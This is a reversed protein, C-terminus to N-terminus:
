PILLSWMLAVARVQHRLELRSGAEVGGTLGASAAVERKAETEFEDVVVPKPSATRPKKQASPRPESDAGEENSPGLATPDDVKRKKPIQPQDEIEEAIPEDNDEGIPVDDLFSFLDSSNM